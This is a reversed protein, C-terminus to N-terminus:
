GAPGVRGGPSIRLNGDGDGSTNAKVSAVEFAADRQQAPVVIAIAGAVLLTSLLTRM